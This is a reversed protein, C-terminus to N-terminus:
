RVDDFRVEAHGHQAHRGFVPLDRVVAVGPPDRPALVLAQQRPAPAGQAPRGMVLPVACRPDMPGSTWWRRGNIVYDDGDREIRTAINTADSSAGGPETM